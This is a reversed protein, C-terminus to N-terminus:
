SSNQVTGTLKSSATVYGRSEKRNLVQEFFARRSNVTLAEAFQIYTVAAPEFLAKNGDAKWLQIWLDTNIILATTM